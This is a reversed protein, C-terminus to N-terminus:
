KIPISNLCNKNYLNIISRINTPDLQNTKIWNYLTRKSIGFLNCLDTTTLKLYIHDSRGRTNRSSDLLKSVAEKKIKKTYDDPDFNEYDSREEEFEEVIYGSSNYKTM